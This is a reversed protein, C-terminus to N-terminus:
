SLSGTVILESTHVARGVSNVVICSYNNQHHYTINPITLITSFPPFYSVHVGGGVDGDPSSNELVQGGM